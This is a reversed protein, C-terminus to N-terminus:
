SIEMNIDAIHQQVVEEQSGTDPILPKPQPLQETDQDSDNISETM